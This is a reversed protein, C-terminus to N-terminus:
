RKAHAPVPDFILPIWSLAISKMGDVDGENGDWIALNMYTQKGAVFEADSLDNRKIDRLFVVTWRGNEYVGRAKTDQHDQRTLTSFGEAIYEAMTADPSPKGPFRGKLLKDVPSIWVGETLPQRDELKRKGETEAQWDARWQWVTVPEGKAGMLPSPNYSAIKIPFMIAAADRFSDPANELNAVKDEWSLQIAVKEGSHIAKMAVVPAKRSLNLVFQVGKPLDKVYKKPTASMRFREIDTVEQAVLQVTDPKIKNWRDDKPDLTLAKDTYHVKVGYEDAAFSPASYLTIIFVSLTILLIKKIM